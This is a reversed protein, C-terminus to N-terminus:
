PDKALLGDLYADVLGYLCKRDCDDAPVASERRHIDQGQSSPVLLSGFFFCIIGLAAVISTKGRM